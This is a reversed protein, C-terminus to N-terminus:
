AMFAICAAKPGQHSLLDTIMQRDEEPRNILSLLGTIDGNSGDLEGYLFHILSLVDMDWERNLGRLWEILAPNM